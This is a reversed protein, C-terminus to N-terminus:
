QLKWRINVSRLAYIKGGNDDNGGWPGVCATRNIKIRKIYIFHSFNLSSFAHSIGGFTHLVFINVDVIIRRNKKTINRSWHMNAHSQRDISSVHLISNNNFFKRLDIYRVSCETNLNIPHAQKNRYNQKLQWLWVFWVMILYYKVWDITADYGDNLKTTTTTYFWHTNTFLTSM